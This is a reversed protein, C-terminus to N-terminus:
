QSLTFTVTVTAVIPVAVGNLYTPSYRWQRVAEMAAQELLPHGRFIKVDSVLGQEDVQVQLLVVGQIRASKAEDPYVPEVRHILKTAQVNSGVRIAQGKAPTTPAPPVQGPTVSVDPLVKPSAPSQLTGPQTTPAPVPKGDPDLSFIVTVTAIVSVPAGKLYTPSYRWQRVAEIAAPDLMPNGRLVKIDAVNGAEDIRVELIVVGAVRASRAAEPYIPEVRHILKTAQVNGGVRVAGPVQETAAIPEVQANEEHSFFIVEPPGSLPFAWVAAIGAALIFVAICLMAVVVRFRPMATERLILSVRQTLHHKSLFSPAPILAPQLRGRAFELLARAYDQRDQTLAVVQEDVAQERKLQIRGFLWWIGPHFWFFALVGQELMTFLWDRRKVHLLEHCAIARQHSESLEHFREPLLVVPRLLGFTAPSRLESSLRVDPRVGIRSQMEDIAPLPRDLARSRRRYRSLRCVGLALWLVRLVLGSLLAAAALEYLTLLRQVPMAVPAAVQPMAQTAFNLPALRITERYWPQFVPLLLCVLLLLQYYPLLLRPLRLRLMWPLLGAVAVLIGIQLSYALLNSLWMSPTLNM